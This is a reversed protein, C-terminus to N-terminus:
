KNRKKEDLRKISGLMAGILNQTDLVKGHPTEEVIVAGIPSEEIDQAMVGVRKKYPGDELLKSLL